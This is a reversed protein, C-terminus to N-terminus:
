NINKSRHILLYERKEMPGLAFDEKTESLFREIKVKRNYKFPQDFIMEVYEDNNYYNEELYYPDFIYIYEDDIDTIVVYHAYEQYVRPLVVGGNKIHNEVKGMTAYEKTCREFVLDFKNKASYENVWHSLFEMARQSTGGPNMDEFYNDMTYKEFARILSLPIDERDYLYNIANTLSTMGCDYETIQFRLPIKM